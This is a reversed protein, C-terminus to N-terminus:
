QSARESVFRRFGAAEICRTATRRTAKLIVRPGLVMVLVAVVSAIARVALPLGPLLQRLGLVSAVAFATPFFVAFITIAIYCTKWRGRTAEYLREHNEPSLRLYERRVSYPFKSPM